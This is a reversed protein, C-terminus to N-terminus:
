PEVEMGRKVHVPGGKARRAEFGKQPGRGNLGAHIGGALSETGQMSIGRSLGIFLFAVAFRLM